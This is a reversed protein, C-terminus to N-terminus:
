TIRRVNVLLAPAVKTLTPTSQGSTRRTVPKEAYAEVVIYNTIAGIADGIEPVTAGHLASGSSSGALIAGPARIVTFRRRHSM